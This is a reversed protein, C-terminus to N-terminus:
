SRRKKNKTIKDLDRYLLSFDMESMGFAMASELFDLVGQGMTVEAKLKEGLAVAMGLDKHLNYVRSRADWKESLIHRPFREQSIFSRANASNFVNIMISLEIGAKEAMNGGQCLTVFNAHCVMNHVLKLTHGAGSPGVFFVQEAIADSFRKTRTYAKRNGGVMLTLKGADAGPAGGSMGADLYEVGKKVSRKALKKTYVPDSTTLDFLVLNKYANALIGRKGKLLVDIEPSAPVVLYILSCQAAMDGPEAVSVNNMKKFRKLSGPVVDWVVTSFGAKALNTAIGRGMNGLGIVGVKAKAM